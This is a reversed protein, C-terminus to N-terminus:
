RPGSGKRVWGADEEVTHGFSVSDIGRASSTVTSGVRVPTLNSRFAVIPNGEIGPHRRGGHSGALNQGANCDDRGAAQEIEEWSGASITRQARGLHITPTRRRDRASSPIWPSFLHATFHQSINLFASNM